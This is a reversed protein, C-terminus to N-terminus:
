TDGHDITTSFHTRRQASPVINWESEHLTKGKKGHINKKEDESGTM